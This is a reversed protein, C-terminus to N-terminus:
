GKKQELLIKMNQNMKEINEDIVAIFQQKFKDIEKIKDKLEDVLLKSKKLSNKYNDIEVMKDKFEKTISAQYIKLSQEIKTDVSAVLEEELKRLEVLKKEIREPDTKSVVEEKIQNLEKLDNEIESKIAIKAKHLFETKVTEFREEYRNALKIKFDELESIKDYIKKPDIQTKIDKQFEILKKIETSLTNQTNKVLGETIKSQLALTSNIEKIKENLKVTTTTIIKSLSEETRSVISDTRKKTEIINDKLDKKLSEFDKSLEQIKGKDEEIIQIKNNIKAEAIKLKAVETVIKANLKDTESSIIKSTIQKTEQQTKEQYKQINDMENEIKLKIADEISKQKNELETLKSNITALLGKQWVDGTNNVEVQNPKENTTVYKKYLDENEDEKYKKYLDPEEKKDEKLDIDFSLEDNKEKSSINKLKNLEKSTDDELIDDDTDNNIPSDIIEGQDDSFFDNPIEEKKKPTVEKTKEKKPKDKIEKIKTQLESEEKEKGSDNILKASEDPSLGINVLNEIIEKDPMGLSKLKRINEIIRQDSM